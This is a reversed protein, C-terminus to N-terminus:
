RRPESSSAALPRQGPQSQSLILSHRTALPLFPQLPCQLCVPNAKRCFHKGTHVILAHFENFLQPDTPLASASMKRIEDYTAKPHAHGHRELIRRTYADVVFVPHRGAYLLISDATEPGIGRLALLQERLVTTPAAFLRTLSGAYSAFLFNVFSKLTKTKQRFYGSPRLLQELRMSHVRRVAKPSLLRADRLNRIAREVNAWSTNQTLIAGVIIEFRTRGPWWHQVGHANLLADFYVRPVFPLTPSM